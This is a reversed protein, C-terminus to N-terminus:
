VRPLANPKRPRPGQERTHRRIDRADGSHSARHARLHWCSFVDSAVITNKEKGSPAGHFLLPTRDLERHPEALVLAGHSHRTQSELM